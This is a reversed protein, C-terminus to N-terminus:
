VVAEVLGVDVESVLGVQTQQETSGRCLIAIQYFIPKPHIVSELLTGVLIHNRGAHTHAPAVGVDVQVLVVPAGVHILYIVGPLNGIAADTISVLHNIGDIRLIGCRLSTQSM